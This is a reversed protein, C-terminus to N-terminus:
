KINKDGLSDVYNLRRKASEPFVKMGKKEYNRNLGLIIFEPNSLGIFIVETKFNNKTPTKFNENYVILKGSDIKYFIFETGVTEIYKDSPSSNFGSILRKNLSIVIKSDGFGWSRKVLYIKEGNIDNDLEVIEKEGSLIIFTPVGFYVLPGVILIILFVKIIHKIM